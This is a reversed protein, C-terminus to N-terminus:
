KEKTFTVSVNNYFGKKMANEEPDTRVDETLSITVKGYETNEWWAATVNIGNEPLSHAGDDGGSPTGLIEKLEACIHEYAKKCEEFSKFNEDCITHDAPSYYFRIMITDGSKADYDYLVSTFSDSFIGISSGSYKEALKDTKFVNDVLHMGPEDREVDGYLVSDFSIELEKELLKQYNEKDSAMIEGCLDLTQKTDLTKATSEARGSIEETSFSIIMDAQESGFIKEGWAIWVEGCPTDKWLAGFYYYQDPTFKTSPEGYRETLMAYISDYADKCEFPTPNHGDLTNIDTNMHFGVTNVMKDDLGYDLDITYFRQGLVEFGEDISYIYTNYYEGIANMRDESVEPEGHSVGLAIDLEGIAWQGDREYFWPCYQEFYELSNATGQPTDPAQQEESSEDTDSSEEADFSEEAESSEDTEPSEESSEGSQVTAAKEKKSSGENVDGCSSVSMVATLALALVIIRKATM